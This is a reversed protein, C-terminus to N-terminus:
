GGGEGEPPLIRGLSRLVEMMPMDKTGIAKKERDEREKLRAASLGLIRDAERSATTVRQEMKHVGDALRDVKFEVSLQLAQLRSRVQSILHTSSSSNTNNTSPTLSSLMEAEEPDLLSADPPQQSSEPTFLPSLEPPPQRLSMWAKKESKLRKIREELEKIKEEHEVNRPNPIVIAPPRPIVERTFWDSFESKSAFDKLLQDQIARAGHIANANLSGIPPKESLAREGCWTLLQKMRRPESLGEAEIHKYFEAPNVERHPIASHGNDILSSARRGRMGLSSRRGGTKRRMEKNRNMIPTDSFPLAIKKSNSVKEAAKGDIRDPEVPTGPLQEPPPESVADDTKSIGNTTAKAKARAPKKEVPKLEELEETSSCRRRRTTRPPPLAPAPEDQHVALQSSRRKSTRRITTPAPQVEVEVERAKTQKPPRGVRRPAPAPVPAIEDEPISDPQTTKVRKSGRTFHFDGDQEDYAALRESRRRKPQNSMSLVQLPQRTQVLTTM